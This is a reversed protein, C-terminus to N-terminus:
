DKWVICQGSPIPLIAESRSAFFEDFARTAGPCTAFGYDDCVIVGGRSMRPYFFELSAMTPEYLDVDIHAIAFTRDAVEPFRDPIWGKYFRCNSFFRELNARTTAESVSIDGKQWSKLGTAAKDLTGGESLGEFSDFIHHPRAPDDLGKLLFFTSKGFRVGCEATDGAVHRERILRGTSYLFFCRDAPVGPPKGWQDHLAKMEPSFTWNIHSKYIHLDHRRLMREFRKNQAKRRTLENRSFRKLVNKLGM